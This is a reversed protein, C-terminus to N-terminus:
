KWKIPVDAWAPGADVVVTRLGANKCTRASAELKVVALMPGNFKGQLQKLLDGRAEDLSKQDSFLVRGLVPGPPLKAQKENIWRRAKRFDPAQTHGPAVYVIRWGEKAAKLLTESAKGDLEDAILTEEADVVLLPADKPWVFIRGGDVPSAKGNEPDVHLVLFETSEAKRLHWEVRAQGHEDSKVEIERPKEGPPLMLRSEHFVLKHGTLRRPAKDDAPPILQARVQPTTEELTCIVDLAMAQLPAPKARPYMWWALLILLLTAVVVSALVLKWPRPRRQALSDKLQRGLADAKPDPPKEKSM